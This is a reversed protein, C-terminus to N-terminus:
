ELDITEFTEQLKSIEERIEVITKKKNGIDGVIKWNEPTDKIPKDESSYRRKERQNNKTMIWYEGEESNYSTVEAKEYNDNYREEKIISIRDFKKHTSRDIADRLLQISTKPGVEGDKNKALFEIKIEKNNYVVEDLYIDYGKYVYLKHEAM